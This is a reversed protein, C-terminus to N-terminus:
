HKTINTVCWGPRLCADPLRFFVKPSALLVARNAQVGLAGPPEQGIGMFEVTVAAAELTRLM